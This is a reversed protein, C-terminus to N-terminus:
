KGRMMANGIARLSRINKATIKHGSVPSETDTRYPHLDFLSKPKVKTKAGLGNTVTANLNYIMATLM